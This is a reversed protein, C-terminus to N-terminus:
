SEINAKIILFIYQPEIEQTAPIKGQRMLDVYVSTVDIIKEISGNSIKILLLTPSSMINFAHFTAKAVPDDCQVEFWSCAILVINLKSKFENAVSPTKLYQLLKPEFATCHPCQNNHFYYLYYGSERPIYATSGSTNVRVFAGLDWNWYYVGNPIANPPSNLIKINEGSGSLATITSTNEGGSPQITGEFFGLKYLVAVTILIILVIIIAYIVTNSGRM